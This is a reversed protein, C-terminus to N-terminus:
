MMESALAERLKRIATALHAEVTKVSIDLLTAVEKYKLNDERILKFTMKCKYPLSDIAANLREIDERRILNDEPTTDTHAFLDISNQVLEITRPQQSRYHSIIKNRAITYIYASFNSIDSLNKRNNWVALFTDSVIEEVEETSSLYLSVFRMLKQFYALYLSKFAVQSDTLSVEYVWQMIETTHTKLHM